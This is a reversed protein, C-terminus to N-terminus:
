GGGSGERQTLEEQCVRRIIRVTAAPFGKGIATSVADVTAPVKFFDAMSEVSGGRCVQRAWAEAEASDSMNIPEIRSIQRNLNTMEGKKSASSLGLTGSGYLFLSASVLIAFTVYRGKM